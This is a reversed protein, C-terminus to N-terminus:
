PIQFRYIGDADLRRALKGEYWLAHLHALAEGLAFTLQHLDLERAFLVPVIGAATQPRACAALVEDLRAQHHEHQQTVRRHLGTFPKGHSPLVLTDAPLMLYHDLSRLYHALPNGEPEVDPVAVNTSIRPLVMDGSILLREEACYLSAHEPAHGFGVIVRFVRKAGHAGIAIEESDHIRRYSAPMAPVLKPYHSGGRVRLQDLSAPDTLGHRQFHAALSEGNVEARAQTLFRAVSYETATMWLPATWRKKEGGQALWWALGVHDPHFHTSVIRLLPRGEFAGDFVREWAAVTDPSTIGTDVATWGRRGDIEDDLLWLNIHDLAFPLRMRVWLLGPRLQIVAGLAPVEAWPYTLERENPNV